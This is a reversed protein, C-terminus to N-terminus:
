ASIYRSSTVKTMAKDYMVLMLAGFPVYLMNVFVLTKRSGLMAQKAKDFPIEALGALSSSLLAWSTQSATSDRDRCSFYLGFYTGAYPVTSLSHRFRVKESTLVGSRVFDFPYVSAAGLLGSVWM